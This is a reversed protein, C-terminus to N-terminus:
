IICAILGPVYSLTAAAVLTAAIMGLAGLPVLGTEVKGGSLYGVFPSGLGIGLAVMGVLESTESPKWPPSQVQGHMYVTARMFAVLFTFFAIGIVSFALPRSGLLLRINDWLPRYLFPPFPRGPNAAPMRRILL